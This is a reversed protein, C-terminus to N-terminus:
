EKNNVIFTYVKKNNVTKVDAIVEVIKKLNNIDKIEKLFTSYQYSTLSIKKKDGGVLDYIIYTKELNKDGDNIKRIVKEKTSLDLIFVNRGETLYMLENTKEYEMKDKKLNELWKDDM